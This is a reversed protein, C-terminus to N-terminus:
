RITVFDSHNMLARVLSERARATAQEANAQAVLGRHKRLADLCVDREAGTPARTLIREFM